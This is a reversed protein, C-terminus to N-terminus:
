AAYLLQKTKEVSQIFYPNSLSRETLLDVKRNFLQELKEHLEFYNDTYKEFPIEKFSILMDIDSSENFDSSTASGFVYMTKIDYKECLRQLELKNNEILNLM